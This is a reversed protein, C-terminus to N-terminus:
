KLDKVLTDLEIRDAMPGPKTTIYGRYELAFEPKEDHTDPKKGEHLPYLHMHLHNVGTGEIAAAVRKTKLGSRIKEAASKGAKMLQLVIQNDVDLYNSEYHNKAIVLAAGPTNPFLDLIAIFEDNEWFKSSEAQGSVIKCFICDEM